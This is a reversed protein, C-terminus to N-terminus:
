ANKSLSLTDPLVTGLECPEFHRMSGEPKGDIAEIEATAVVIDSIVIFVKSGIEMGKEEMKNYM